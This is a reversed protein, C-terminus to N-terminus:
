DMKMWLELDIGWKESGKIEVLLKINSLDKMNLSTQLYYIQANAGDGIKGTIGYHWINYLEKRKPVLM